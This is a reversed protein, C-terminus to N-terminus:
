IFIKCDLHKLTNLIAFSVPVTKSVREETSVQFYSFQCFCCVKKNSKFCELMQFPDHQQEDVKLDAFSM